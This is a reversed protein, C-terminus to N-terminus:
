AACSEPLLQDTTMFTVEVMEGFAAAISQMTSSGTDTAFQAMDDVDIIEIYHYPAPQDSGLQGTARWVTFKDVSPLANVIPLDVAKAWAEYSEPSVGPKLNFLAILRM